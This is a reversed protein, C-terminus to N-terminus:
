DTQIYTSHGLVAVKITHYGPFRYFLNLVANIDNIDNPLKYFQLFPAGVVQAITRKMIFPRGGERNRWGLFNVLTEAAAFATIGDAEQHLM